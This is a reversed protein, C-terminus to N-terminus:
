AQVAGSPRRWRQTDRWGLFPLEGKNALWQEPSEGAMQLGRLAPRFRAAFAQPQQALLENAGILFASLQSADMSLFFVMQRWAYAANKIRQLETRWDATPLQLHDLVWDYCSQALELTRGNFRERVEGREFLLALNHSTLILQEEIIRGNSAPRWAGLSEAAREACVVALADQARSERRASAQPVRRLVDGYDVRYYRAYLSGSLLHGAIHVADLFKPSFAGMFIDAALEETFPLKLDAERALAMFEQLLKNPLMTQPFSEIAITAFEDLAARAAQAAAEDVARMPEIAAVWPLDEIQVQKQLNLLLLSRRRRFARYTSAYLTRLAGDAFSAARLQSTRQPLLRALVESSSVIGRRILGRPTDNLCRNLRREMCAEARPARESGSPRLVVDIDDLGDDAPLESMRRSVEVALEHNTKGAIQRRQRDRAESATASAPHGRKAVYRALALRIRGVERGTLRDPDDVAQELAKVLLSFTENARDLKGCRGHSKRSERISSLVERARTTWGEPRQKLPWGGQVIFQGREGRQWQGDADKAAIPTPGEVTELFLGVVADYLPTWVEIAERQADIQANPGIRGLARAVEGITDLHVRDDSAAVSLDLRPYFRLERAFPALDAVLRAAIQGHGQAGLWAVVLLASEEAVEIAFRRSSLAENLRALGADSLFYRNLALRPSEADSLGLEQLLTIEHPRLPSAALAKGTAFGGTVVELTVWDPYRAVPQRSGAETDGSLMGAIVDRWRRVREAAPEGRAVADLARQLQNAAYGTGIVPPPLDSPPTSAM